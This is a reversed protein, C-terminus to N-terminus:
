NLDIKSFSANINIMQDSRGKSNQYIVKDFSSKMSLDLENKLDVKCSRMNGYFSFDTDPLHITADTNKLDIDVLDFKPNIEKITLEGLRGNIMAENNLKGLSLNSSAAKVNITNIESIDVNKAYRLELDLVDAKKIAVKSFEATVYHQGNLLEEIVLKGYKINAKLKKVKGISLQGHRLQIDVIADKPIKINVSRSIKNEAGSFNIDEGMSRLKIIMPQMKKEMSRAFAEMNAMTKGHTIKNVISDMKGDNFREEFKNAWIKMKKEFGDMDFSDKMRKQFEELYAEGKEEYKKHDFRLGKIFPKPPKPPKPLVLSRKSMRLSDHDRDAPATFPALIGSMKRNNTCTTVEVLGSNGLIKIPCEEFLTSAKEQEDGQYTLTAEVEIKNRNWTQISVDANKLDVKLEPQDDVTFTEKYTKSSQANLSISIFILLLNFLIIKITKM